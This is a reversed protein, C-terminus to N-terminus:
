ATRFQREAMATWFAASGARIATEGLRQAWWADAGYAERWAWLRRTATHLAHERTFGIAGLVQHGVAAVRTGAEGCCVKAVAVGFPGRYEREADTLSFDQGAMLSAMRATAVDGAVQALAQQLAQNKGIPRGFQVRDNAYQIAQALVWEMAGTMMTSHVLAGLSRLPERVAFASAPLVSRVIASDFNVTDSPMGATDRGHTISVGKADALDIYALDGNDLQAVAWRAHCAWPVSQARGSIKEGSAALSLETGVRADILTGPGAPLSQGAADLLALGIATEALPTPIRYRGLESFIPLAQEPLLGFGQDSSVLALQFGSEEIQTWLAGPFEGSEARENLTLDEAADAFLRAASEQIMKEDNM